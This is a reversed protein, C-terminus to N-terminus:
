KKERRYFDRTLRNVAKNFNELDIVFLYTGYFDYYQYDIRYPMEEKGHVGAMVVVYSKASPREEDEDIVVRAYDDKSPSYLFLFYGGIGTEYKQIRHKNLIAKITRKLLRPLVKKVEESDDRLVIGFKMNRELIAFYNHPFFRGETTIEWIDLTSGLTFVLKANGKEMLRKIKDELECKWFLQYREDKLKIGFSELPSEPM